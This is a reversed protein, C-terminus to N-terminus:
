GEPPPLYYGPRARVTVGPRTVQVKIEHYGVPDTGTPRYSLTYQAHLEGGIEDIAKEISRDRFTALHLGGTGLTALDLSNQGAANAAKQVIWIVLGMLDINGHRQQESTPTQPTGPIPPLGFTGPPTASPPATQKPPARLEAATTSLGVTYITVNSLQAERLVQGLKNESGTDAAEALAVIVRRHSPPRNRLLNVAQSLADYLRAGSTGLRLNGITKEIKDASTSFPLLQEISDNYGLVAAEGTQGVVTQSFLIGTKRIAPLLAEIRSSTEVLIVVSLPDGGLDFHEIRQEVGNDFVRFDRQSLDLVLEGAADRVTVPTNVLEVKVRIQPKEKPQQIAAGPKPPLPGAPAQSRLSVAFSLISVLLFAFYKEARKLM